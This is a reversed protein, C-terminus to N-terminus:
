AFCAATVRGSETPLRWAAGLHVDRSAGVPASGGVRCPRFSGDDRRDPCLSWWGVHDFLLGGAFAGSTIAFQILAVFWAGGEELRDPITRTMWTTWAAPVPTTFLGWLLLLGATAFAFSGLGVLALAVIVLFAPFGILVHGMHSRLIGPILWTGGLGALGVGLLVLSLANVDLLTIDELFPRLYTSLAFQGMFFLIMATMGLAFTRNAMLAFTRGLSGHRAGPMRPLVALQWLFAAAGIPVVIFFAGRWGILGGLFSGLPAAIVAALASGGQLMALAKPVDSTSAIRAIIATSLSWYGGISIGILARGIMFVLYNPALTVILGSAVLVITYGLVVLRRDFRGLVVNSFLATFVAFFGSISIAQGAQGATIALEDAIPTLLSVPMFESAVLTFSTLMMCIVASWPTTRTEIKMDYATDM